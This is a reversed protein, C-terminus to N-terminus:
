AGETPDGGSGSSVPGALEDSRERRVFYRETLFDVAGPAAQALWILPRMWGPVVRLRRPREALDAIAEGIQEPRM